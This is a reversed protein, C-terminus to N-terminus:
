GSRNLDTESEAILSTLLKTIHALGAATTDLRTGIGTFGDDVHRRLDALDERMDVLDERMANFSTTTAQRFDRMESRFDRMEETM